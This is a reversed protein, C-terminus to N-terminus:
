VNSTYDELQRGVILTAAKFCRNLYDKFVLTFDCGDLRVIKFKKVASIVKTNLTLLEGIWNELPIVM